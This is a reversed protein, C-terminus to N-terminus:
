LDAGITSVHAWWEGGGLGLREGIARVYSALQRRNMEELATAYADLKINSRDVRSLTEDDLSQVAISQTTMIGASQFITAIEVLREPKNKASNIIVLYPWGTRAKCDVIHRSLDIDRKLMGWNADAMFLGMIKNDFIWTLEARLREEEFKAVRSDGLGWYCFACRFPCGRNTEFIAYTYRGGEFIGNLFPSPIEDLDM